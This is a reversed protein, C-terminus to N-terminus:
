ALSRNYIAACVLPAYIIIGIILPKWIQKTRYKKDKGIYKNWFLYDMILAGVTCFVITLGNGDSVISLLYYQLGTYIIGFAIVQWIGKKTETKRLNIALLIAGFLVSFFLTFWFIAKESYYIPADEDTVINKEWKKKWFSNEEEKEITVQKLQFEQKIGTLEEDSFVRGRKQMETIAAEVAEQTFKARNNIYEQLGEDSKSNMLKQFDIEM